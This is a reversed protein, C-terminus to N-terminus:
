NYAENLYKMRDSKWITDKEINYCYYLVNSKDFTQMVYEYEDLFIKENKFEKNFTNADDHSYIKIYFREDNLWKDTFIHMFPKYLDFINDDHIEIMEGFSKDIFEKGVTEVMEQFYNHDVSMHRVADFRVGDCGCEKLENLFAFQMKRIDFNQLNLAPLGGLSNHTAEYYNDYNIINRFSSEYWLYGLRTIEGDVLPSVDNGKFNAVHHLVTDVYVKLGLQHAKICLEILESKCCLQNGIKFNTPQYLIFWNLNDQLLPEKLGQIPSLLIITFGQSKIMELNEIIKNVETNFAQFVIERKM